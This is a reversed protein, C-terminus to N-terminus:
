NVVFSNNKRGEIIIIYIGSALELKIENSVVFGYKVMKGQTNFIRFPKNQVKSIDTIQISKKFYDYIVASEDKMKLTNNTLLFSSEYCGMDVITGQIRQGQMLDLLHGPTLLSNDGSNVAPSNWMVTYDFSSADFNTNGGQNPNIFMPDMDLINIGAAHGGEVISYSVTASTNIQRGAYKTNGYIICNSIKLHSDELRIIEDQITNIYTNYNHAFTCNTMEFIDNVNNGNVYLVNGSFDNIRNGIISTSMIRATDFHNIDLISITSSNNTILCREITLTQFRVTNYLCAGVRAVNNKFKTDRVILNSYGGNNNGNCIAGGNGSGSQNNIFECDELILNAAALYIAGGYSTAINNFFYCNKVLLNGSLTNTIKLGGGNYSSGSNGNIIRFGDLTINSAINNGRIINHSNDANDGTNGIDGSLTTPNLAIDRQSLSTETGNFGGYINVGDKLVFAVTRDTSGTPKYQGTAVWIEDGFVAISLASQLDTFANTWNTGSGTGSANVDVYYRISYAHNFFLLFLLLAATKIKDPFM